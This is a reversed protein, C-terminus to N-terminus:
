YTYRVVATSVPREATVDIGYTATSNSHNSSTQEPEVARTRNARYNTVATM